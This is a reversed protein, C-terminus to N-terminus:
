PTEQGYIIRKKEREVFQAMRIKELQQHATINGGAANAALALGAAADVMLLGRKYHYNVFSDLDYFEAIFDNKPVDLYMAIQELSYGAGALNELQELEEQSLRIKIAHM